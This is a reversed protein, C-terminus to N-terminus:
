SFNILPLQGFTNQFLGRVFSVWSIFYCSIDYLYVCLSLILLVTFFRHTLRQQYRKFYEETNKALFDRRLSSLSWELKRPNSARRALVEEGQM